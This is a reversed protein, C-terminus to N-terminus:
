IKFIQKNGSLGLEFRVKVKEVADHLAELIKESDDISYTYNNKNALNGILKMDHLVKDVRKEALRVFNERHKDNM